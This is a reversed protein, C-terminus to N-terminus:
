VHPFYQLFFAMFICFVQIKSVYFVSIPLCTSTLAPFNCRFILCNKAVTNRDFNSLAFISWTNGFLSEKAPESKVTSAGATPPVASVATVNSVASVNPETKVNALEVAKKKYHALDELGRHVPDLPRKRLGTKQRAM